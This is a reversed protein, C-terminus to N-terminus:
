DRLGLWLGLGTAVVGLGIVSGGIIKRNREANVARATADVILQTAAQALAGEMPTEQYGAEEPTPIRDDGSPAEPATRDPAAPPAQSPDGAPAEGSKNMSVMITTIATLLVPISALIAQTVPDVVGLEGGGLLSVEPGAFVALLKGHPGKARLKAKVWARAEVFEAPTPKQKSKRRDWALKKARRTVLTDVRVKLPKTALRFAAKSVNAVGRGAAKVGRGAARAGRKITKWQGLDDQGFSSAYM